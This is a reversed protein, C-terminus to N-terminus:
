KGQSEKAVDYETTEASVDDARSITFHKLLMAKFEM